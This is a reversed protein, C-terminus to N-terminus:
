VKSRTVVEVNVLIELMESECDDRWGKIPKENADKAMDELKGNGFDQDNWKPHYNMGWSM